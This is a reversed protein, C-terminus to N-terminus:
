DLWAWTRKAIIDAITSKHVGFRNAVTSHSVRKSILARIKKVDREKLISLPHKEGLHRPPRSMRGKKMADEVNDMSTGLFLHAPNVCPPNDCVHCVFMEGPDVQYYIEYSLRHARINKNGIHRLVGHGSRQKAGLWEWCESPGRKDVKEWFRGAIDSGPKRGKRYNRKEM